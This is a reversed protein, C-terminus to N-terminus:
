QQQLQQLASYPNQAAQALMFQSSQTLINTLAFQAMGKAVDLNRITSESAQLNESEIALNDSIFGLRNETAGLNTMATNVIGLANDVAVIATSAEAAGNGEGDNEANELGEVLGTLNLDNLTMSAINVTTTNGGDAGTQFSLYNSSGDDSAWTGDLLKVGNFSTNSAISDISSLLSSVETIIYGRETTGNTDNGYNVLKERITSLTSAINTMAGDATKIMNLGNQTNRDAQEVSTNRISMKQAIALDSAGDAATNIRRGSAVKYMNSSLAISNRNYINYTRVSDMNTKIVMSM